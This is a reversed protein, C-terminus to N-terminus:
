RSRSSGGTSVEHPTLQNQLASRIDCVVVLVKNRPNAMALESATNLCRCFLCLLLM